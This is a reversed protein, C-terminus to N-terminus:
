KRRLVTEAKEFMGRERGRQRDRERGREVSKGERERVGCEKGREGERGLREGREM